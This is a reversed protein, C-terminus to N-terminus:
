NYKHEFWGGQGHQPAADVSRLAFRTRAALAYYQFIYKYIVSVTRARTHTLIHPENTPKIIPAHQLLSLTNNKYIAIALWAFLVRPKEEFTSGDIMRDSNECMRKTHSKYCGTLHECNYYHKIFYACKNCIFDFVRANISVCSVLEIVNNVKMEVKYEHRCFSASGQWLKVAM